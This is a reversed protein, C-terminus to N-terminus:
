CPPMMLIAMCILLTAYFLAFYVVIIMFTAFLRLRLFYRLLRRHPMKAYCVVDAVPETNMRINQTHIVM